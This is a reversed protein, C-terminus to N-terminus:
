DHHAKPPLFTLKSNFPFNNSQIPQSAQKLLHLPHENLAFGVNDFSTILLLKLKRYNKPKKKTSDFLFKENLGSILLELLM